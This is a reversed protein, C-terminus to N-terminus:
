FKPTFLTGKIKNRFHIEVIGLMRKGAGAPGVISAKIKRETDNQLWDIM